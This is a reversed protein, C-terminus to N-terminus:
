KENVRFTTSIDSKRPDIAPPIRVEVVGVVSGVELITPYDILERRRISFEDRFTNFGNAAIAIRNRGKMLSPSVLQFRGRADTKRTIAKGDATTITVKADPIVAGTADAVTGQIIPSEVSTESRVGQSDNLSLRQGSAVSFLGLVAAFVTGALTAIRKRYASLGEPCDSTIVTGDTRRRLRVCVRNNNNEILSSAEFTTLGSINYVTLECRDCRRSRDDGHMSDWSAPCPSAVHIDNINFSRNRMIKM